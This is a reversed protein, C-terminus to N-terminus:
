ETISLRGYRFSVQYCDSVDDYANNRISYYNVTNDFTGVDYGNFSSQQRTSVNLVEDPLLEGAVLTWDKAIADDYYPRTVDLTQIVLKRPTISLIGTDYTIDYLNPVDLGNEDTIKATIKNNCLGVRWLSGSTSMELNHGPVLTGSQIWCRDSSLVKGDYVKSISESALVIAGSQITLTGCTYEIDYNETVDEGNVDTIVIQYTNAYKGINVPAALETAEWQEGTAVRGSVLQVYDNKLPYGDYVKWADSSEFVLKRRNVELEGCMLNIKYQDTVDLGSSDVIMVSAYNESKGVVTQSGRTEVILQHEESVKGSVLDWTKSVLPKGDFMKNASGTKIILETKRYRFSGTAAIITMVILGVTLVVGCIGIMYVSFHKKM